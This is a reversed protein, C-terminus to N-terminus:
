CVFGLIKWRFIENLFIGRYRLELFGARMARGLGVIGGWKLFEWVFEMIPDCVTSRKGGIIGM